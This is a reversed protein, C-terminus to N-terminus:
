RPAEPSSAVEPGTLEVNPTLITAKAEAWLACWACPKGAKKGNDRDWVGPVEHCHGPANGDGRDYMSEEELLRSLLHRLKDTERELERALPALHQHVEEYYEAQATRSVGPHEAMVKAILADVRPTDSPLLEPDSGDFLEHMTAM